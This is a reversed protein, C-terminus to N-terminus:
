HRHQLMKDCAGEQMHAVQQLLQQLLLQRRTSGEEVEKRRMLSLDRGFEDV